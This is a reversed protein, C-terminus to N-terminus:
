RDKCEYGDNLCRLVITDDSVTKTMHQGCKPCIDSLSKIDYYKDLRRGAIYDSTLYDSM